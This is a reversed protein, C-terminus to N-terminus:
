GPFPFGAAALAAEGCAVDEPASAGSIGLGGIVSGDEDLLPFGGAVMCIRSDTFQLGFGPTEPLMIARVQATTRQWIAATWAKKEAVMINAPRGGDARAAGRIYGGSDVVVASMPKGLTTGHALAAELLVQVEQLRLERM